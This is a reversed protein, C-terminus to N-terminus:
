SRWAQDDPRRPYLHQKCTRNLPLRIYGESRKSPDVRRVLRVEKLEARMEKLSAAEEKIRRELGACRFDLIEFGYRNPHSYNTWQMKNSWIFLYVHEDKLVLNKARYNLMLGYMINRSAMRVWLLRPFKLLKKYDDEPRM